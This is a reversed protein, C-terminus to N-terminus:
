EEDESKSKSKKEPEDRFMNKFERVAEGLGRGLEPLKRSGFLLVLVVLIILLETAGINKLM